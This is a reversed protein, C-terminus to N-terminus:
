SKEAISDIWINCFTAISPFFVASSQSGSTNNASWVTVIFSIERCRIFRPLTILINLVIGTQLLRVSLVEESVHFEAKLAYCKNEAWPIVAYSPVASLAARLLSASSSRVVAARAAWEIWWEWRGTRVDGWNSCSLCDILLEHGFRLNSALRNDHGSTTETINERLWRILGGGYRCIERFM